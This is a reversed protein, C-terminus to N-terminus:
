ERAPLASLTPTRVHTSNKRVLDVVGKLFLSEPLVQMQMRAAGEQMRQANERPRFLLIDGDPSCQAKMGEFLGQGYNLVQASPPMSLNGFPVVGDEVWGTAETWKAVFM